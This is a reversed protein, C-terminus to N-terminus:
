VERVFTPLLVSVYLSLMGNKCTLGQVTMVPEDDGSSASAPAPTWLLGQRGHGSVISPLEGAEAVSGHSSRVANAGPALNATHWCATAQSIAAQLTPLPATTFLTAPYAAWGICWFEM